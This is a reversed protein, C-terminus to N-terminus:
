YEWGTASSTETHQALTGAVEHLRAETRRLASRASSLAEGDALHAAQSAKLMGQFREAIRIAEDMKAHLHDARKWSEDLLTVQINVRDELEDILAADNLNTRQLDDSITLLDSYQEWSEYRGQDLISHSEGNPGVFFAGGNYIAPEIHTFLGQSRIRSNGM